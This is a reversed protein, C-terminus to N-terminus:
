QLGWLPWPQQWVPPSAVTQAMLETKPIPMYGYQSDPPCSELFANVSMWKAHGDCYGINFGESHIAARTDITKGDPKLVNQWYERTAIPYSIQTGIAPTNYAGVGPLKTELLILTQAPTTLGSLVGGTWSNRYYGIDNPQRGYTNLSGTLSINLGYGGNWIEADQKWSTEDRSRNPCLLVQM